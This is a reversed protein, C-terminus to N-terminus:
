PCTPTWSSRRMIGPWEWEIRQGDWPTIAQHQSHEDFQYPFIARINSGLLAADPQAFIRVAVPNAFVIVGSNDTTIVGDAIANLTVAARERQIQLSSAARNLVEFTRRIELPADDVELKTTHTAGMDLGSEFARMRDINGLWRRLPLWILRFLMSAAASIGFLM